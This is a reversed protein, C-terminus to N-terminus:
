QQAALGRGRSSMFNQLFDEIESQEKMDLLQMRQDEKSKISTIVKKSLAKYNPSSTDPYKAFILTELQISIELATMESYEGRDVTTGGGGM